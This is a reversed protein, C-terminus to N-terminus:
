NKRQEYFKVREELAKLRSTIEILSETSTLTMDTSQSPMLQNNYNGSSLPNETYNKGVIPRWISSLNFFSQTQSVNRSIKMFNLNSNNIETNEVKEYSHSSNNATNNSAIPLSHSRGRLEYGIDKGLLAKIMKNNGHGCNKAYQYANNGNFDIINKDAKGYTLLTEISRTHGNSAALMLATRGQMQDQYDVFCSYQTLIRIINFHGYHSAYMLPTWGSSNIENVDAFNNRLINEVACMDGVSVASILDINTSEFTQNITSM